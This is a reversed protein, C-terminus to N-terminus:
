VSRFLLQDARVGTKERVEMAVREEEPSIFPNLCVYANKKEQFRRTTFNHM